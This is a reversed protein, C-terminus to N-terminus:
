EIAAELTASPTESCETTLIEVLFKSSGFHSMICSFRLFWNESCGTAYTTM